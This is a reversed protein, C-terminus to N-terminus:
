DGAIKTGVGHVANGESESFMYLGEGGHVVVFRTFKDGDDSYGFGTCDPNALYTFAGTEDFSYDGNRSVSQLVTANGNGDFTPIGVASLGGAGFQITGTRYIGFTGKLSANSCVHGHRSDAFATSSALVLMGTAVVRCLKFVRHLGDKM